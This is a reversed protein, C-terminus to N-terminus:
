SPQRRLELPLSDGITAGRVRPTDVVALHNGIINRMRFQYRRGDFSGNEPIADFHYGASLSNIGDNVADIVSQVRIVLSGRLWPDAFRIDTGTAGCTIDSPHHESDLPQHTWLLPLTRFTPAAKTLEEAPRLVGYQKDPDLDLHVGPPLNATLERGLYESVEAKSIPADCVHLHGDISYSRVSRDLALTLHPPRPPRKGWTPFVGRPRAPPRYPVLQNM